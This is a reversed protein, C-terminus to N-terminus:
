TIARHRLRALVDESNELKGLRLDQLGKDIEKNLWDTKLLEIAEYEQMSMVVAVAKGNKNIKIPEYQVKLLMEGFERKADSANLIEM